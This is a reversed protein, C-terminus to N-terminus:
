RGGRGAERPATTRVAEVARDLDERTHALTVSFRLREAGAPVTPARIAPVILGRERLRASWAVAAAAGGARVPIIQTTSAGTDFDAEKLRRRFHDARALLEDGWGPHEAVADLAGLVGGIVAPPLATTYILARAHNILYERMATSCAVFGGYNGLAKSLTGMALNVGPCSTGDAHCLGGGGPGLVGTAHAEDILVMAGHTEALGILADLPARDGDMSFVSESVILRRGDGMASRSLLGALHDADNHRFRRIRARSLLAADILSAHALRDIYVTDGPGVLTPILGLNALFGSGMVLAAPYGKLRALRGELEEHIPLNGSVLRSAGAGAGYGELASRAGAIVRPHRCLDLYDNSAFNLFTQGDLELKGGARPMAVLRRELGQERREALLPPIWNEARFNM